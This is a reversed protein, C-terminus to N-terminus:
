GHSQEKKPGVLYECEENGPLRYGPMCEAGISDCPAFDDILCGCDMEDYLGDYGNDKLYKVVIEKVTMHNSREDPLALKDM